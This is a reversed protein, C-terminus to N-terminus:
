FPIVGLASGPWGNEGVIFIKEGICIGNWLRQKRGGKKILIDNFSNRLSNSMRGQITGPTFGKNIRLRQM